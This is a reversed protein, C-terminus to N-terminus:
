KVKDIEEFLKLQDEILLRASLDSFILSGNEIGVRSITFSRYHSSNLFGSKRKNRKIIMDLIPKAIVAKKDCEDGIQPQIFQPQYGNLCIKNVAGLLLDACQLLNADAYDESEVAYQRHDSQLHIIDLDQQFKVFNKLPSRKNNFEDSYLKEVIRSTDYCRHAPLGDIIIKKITIKNEEDYLYHCTGKILMRLITEDYRVQNEKTSEGFFIHKRVKEPYYLIGFKCFAPSLFVTSQKCRLAEVLLEIVLKFPLNVVSWKKGSIESFHFKGNFHYCKRIKLIEKILDKKPSYEIEDVVFLPLAGSIHIREPVIFIVLGSITQGGSSKLNKTEDCYIHVDTEM